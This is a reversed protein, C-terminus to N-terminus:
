VKASYFQLDPRNNIISNSNPRNIMISVNTNYSNPRNTNTNHSKPIEIMLKQIM